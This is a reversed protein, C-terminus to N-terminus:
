GRLSHAWSSKKRGKFQNKTFAVLFTTDPHLKTPSPKGLACFVRPEIRLMLSLSLLLVPPLVHSKCVRGHPEYTKSDPKCIFHPLTQLQPHSLGWFQVLFKRSWRQPPLTSSQIGLSASLPPRPRSAWSPEYPFSPETPFQALSM